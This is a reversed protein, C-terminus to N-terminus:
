SANAELKALERAYQLVYGVSGGKVAVKKAEDIIKERLMEARKEDNPTTMNVVSNASTQSQNKKETSTRAQQGRRRKNQKM